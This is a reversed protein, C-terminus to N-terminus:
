IKTWNKTTSLEIGWHLSEDTGNAVYYYISTPRKIYGTILRQKQEEDTILYVMQGIKFENNQVDIIIDIRQPKSEKM